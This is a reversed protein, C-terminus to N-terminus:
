CEARDRQADVRHKRLSNVAWVWARRARWHDDTGRAGAGM